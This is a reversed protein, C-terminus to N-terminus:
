FISTASGSSRTSSRSCTIPMPGSTRPIRVDFLCSFYVAGLDEQWVFYLRYECWSGRLEVVMEADATRDFRWDNASVFEELLDIPNNASEPRGASVVAM